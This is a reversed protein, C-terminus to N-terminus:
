EVVPTAVQASFDILAPFGIDVSLGMDESACVDVLAQAFDTAYAAIIISTVQEISPVHEVLLKAFIDIRDIVMGTTIDTTTGFVTNVITKCVDNNVFAIRKGGEVERMENRKLVKSGSPMILKTSM